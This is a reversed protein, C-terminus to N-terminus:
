KGAEVVEDVGVGCLRFKKGLATGAFAGSGVWEVRAGWGLRLACLERCGEFARFGIRKLGRPFKVRVLGCKAFTREGVEELASGRAIKLERLARAGEFAYHGIRRVSAPFVVAEM